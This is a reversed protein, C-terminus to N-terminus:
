GIRGTLCGEAFHEPHCWGIFPPLVPMSKSCGRIRIFGHQRYRSVARSTEPQIDNGQKWLLCPFATRVSQTRFQHLQNSCQLRRENAERASTKYFSIRGPGIRNPTLRYSINGFTFMKPIYPCVTRCVTDAIM